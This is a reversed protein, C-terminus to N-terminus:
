GEINLDGYVAMVGDLMGELTFMERVRQRAAAGCEARLHPDGLLTALADALDESDRPPVTLGTEGDRSVWPVGTPLDTNVVPLGRAMAELQVIGFAESPEVSPLAFVDAAAYWRDLDDDPVYGPFVVRDAVGLSDALAELERRRDGEGVVVFVADEVQAAARVLYEVGKYYTLRGVFLVVPRGEIRPDTVPDADRVEPDIGLPVVSTKGVHPALLTSNNRLRPSTTIIHNVDALVRELLPRYLRLARAQRVIDSHYTVITPADPRVLLHSVVALPNPLHYHVVDANAAADALSSPFTPALPTSLVTGITGIRRVPVGDVRERTGQVRDTGALVCVDYGRSHFGDALQKVAHEVGGIAPHYLKNVQLIRM